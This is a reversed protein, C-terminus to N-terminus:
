RRRIVGKTDEFRDKDKQKLWIDKKYDHGRIVQVQKSLFMNRSAKSKATNSYPPVLYVIETWFEM